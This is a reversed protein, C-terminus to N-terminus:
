PLLPGFEGFKLPFFYFGFQWIKIILELLYGLFYFSETKKKGVEMDQIYGFISLFNHTHSVGEFYVLSKGEPGYSAQL